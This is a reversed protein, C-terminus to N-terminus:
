NMRRGSSSATQHGWGERRQGDGRGWVAVISRGLRRGTLPDLVMSIPIMYRGWAAIQAVRPQERKLLVRNALSSLM